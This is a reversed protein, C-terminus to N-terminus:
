QQWSKCGEEKMGEGKRVKFHFMVKSVKLPRPDRRATQFCVGPKKGWPAETSGGVPASLSSASPWPTVSSRRRHWAPANPPVRRSLTESPWFGRSAERVWSLCEFQPSVAFLTLMKQKNTQKQPKQECFFLRM